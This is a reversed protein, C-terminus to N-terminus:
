SGTSKKFQETFYNLVSKSEQECVNAVLINFLQKSTCFNAKSKFSVSDLM